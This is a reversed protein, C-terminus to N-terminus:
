SPSRRVTARQSGLGAIGLELRDGEQLFVPPQQHMGLGPPTGTAILDGPVLKMYRSMHAVLRAVGTIMQSTNANQMIHGNLKLWLGLHQPDSIEDKSVLYPGAPGYGPVSKGKIWQGGHEFMYDRECVDNVICYGFVHDLAEAESIQWAEKGIVLGLEVEWDTKQSNAPLLIDDHAGSLATTAKSTIVVKESGTMDVPADPKRYNLGICYFNPVRGVCAGIREHRDVIPLNQLDNENLGQLRNSAIVEPNIDEVLSSLDRINGVDDLAGPKEKGTPGWRLYKM